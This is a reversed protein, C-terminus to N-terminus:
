QGDEQGFGSDMGGSQNFLRSDFQAEGELKGGGTMQGLAIKESVDRDGDRQTKSKKGLNELRM